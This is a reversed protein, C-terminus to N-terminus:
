FTRRCERPGAGICETNFWIRIHSYGANGRDETRGYSGSGPECYGMNLWLMEINSGDANCVGNSSFWGVSATHWQDIEEEVQARNIYIPGGGSSDYCVSLDAQNDLNTDIASTDFWGYLTYALVPGATLLLLIGSGLVPRVTRRM